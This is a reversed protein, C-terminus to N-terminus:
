RRSFRKIIISIMFAVMVLRVILVSTLYLPSYRPFDGVGFFIAPVRALSAVYSPLHLADLGSVFVDVIAMVFLIVFLARALKWLSEGNGWIYDFAKFNLWAFFMKARVFGKYKERYYSEKSRWAKHLHEEKAELEVHIAKNVSAYDGLSQFNTRLTRAFRDRLNEPGPCGVDLIESDVITKDFVSYDFKCGVFSSGHLNSDKFRCGTFNCNQFVCKRLYCTDFITYSFDVGDFAVEKAVLRQFLHNTYHTTVKSRFEFRRDALTQRDSSTM